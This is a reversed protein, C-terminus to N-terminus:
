WIDESLYRMGTDPFITVISKNEARKAIEISAKLACGSSIGVLIGETKSIEATLSYADEDSITIVEDYIEKDLTSPVFNAGIGQIKHPGAKGESLLPSSKPEVAVVQISSNQEKLYKGTGSLTGGTGVACVFYDIQGDLDKYIEPGTTNYHAIPNAVNEFQSAIFSNQTEKAIKQALENAGKMGLKGDSLIVEAGYARMIQIREKSMTDPMVIVSKFGMAGGIGALGIGTNGSTAEIITGGKTIKGEKLAVDIINKAIRDKSSGCPNFLELKAFIKSKLNYKKEIECLEIIPTNGVLENISKYIAM